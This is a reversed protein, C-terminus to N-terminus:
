ALTNRHYGVMYEFQEVLVLPRPVDSFKFMDDFTGHIHNFTLFSDIALVQWAM